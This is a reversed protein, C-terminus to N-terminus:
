GTESRKQQTSKMHLWAMHRKAKNEAEHKEKAFAPSASNLLKDNDEYIHDYNM